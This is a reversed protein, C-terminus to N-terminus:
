PAFLMMEEAFLLSFHHYKRFLLFLFSFYIHMTKHSLENFTVNLLIRRQETMISIDQFAKQLLKTSYKERKMSTSEKSSRRNKLLVAIRRLFEEQHFVFNANRPFGQLLSFIWCCNKNSFSRRFGLITPELLEFSEGGYFIRLFSTEWGPSTLSEIHIRKIIYFYHVM